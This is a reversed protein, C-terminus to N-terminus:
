QLMNEIMIDANLYNKILRDRQREMAETYKSPNNLRDNIFELLEEKHEEYSEFSDTWKSPYLFEPEYMEQYSCRNPMVPISGALTAEMMSIGLNEHLACSFIVASSGLEEYYEKKSLSMKQTIVMDVVASLDEAIDPQKDSNYRHPWIVQKLKPVSQYKILEVVIPNHPQGSRVAKDHYGFPISLNRLFMDRHFDTGFYVYDCAYFWSQEVAASWEKSMKMGLIDTPDYAGAHAIAHIEVPIDLLESMYKIPTIAFNWFDTVLFKDGSKVKGDMFLKSIEATQTAKYYNTAAFDLFAGATTTQPIDYGDVTVINVNKGLSDAKEKILKPINYYWQQTYRGDLKELCVIWINM